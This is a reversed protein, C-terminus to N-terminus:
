VGPARCGETNFILSNGSIFVMFERVEYSNCGDGGSFTKDWGKKSTLLEDGDETVARIFIETDCFVHEYEQTEIWSGSLNCRYFADANVPTTGIRIHVWIPTEGAYVETVMAALILSVVLYFKITLIGGILCPSFVSAGKNKTVTAM